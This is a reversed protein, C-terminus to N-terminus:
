GYNNKTVTDNQACGQGICNAAIWNHIGTHATGTNLVKLSVRNLQEARRSWLENHQSDADVIGM